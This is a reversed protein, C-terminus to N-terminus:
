YIEDHDKMPQVIQDPDTATINECAHINIMGLKGEMFPPPLLATDNM